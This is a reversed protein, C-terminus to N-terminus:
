GALESLRRVLDAGLQGTAPLGSRTEFTRIAQRTKPTLVGDEGGPDYGLRALMQQVLLVQDATPEPAIVASAANAASAKAKAAKVPKLGLVKVQVPNLRATNKSSGTAPANALTAVAIGPQATGLLETGTRLSLNGQTRAGENAARDRAKPQWAMIVADIDSVTAPLMQTRMADRRRSAEADGAKAALGYWRYAEAQDQAVGLGNENLVALNFQSDALGFEAAKSFWAAAMQYNPAGAEPGSIIVALNHMAKVNGQQAARDYWDRAVEQDRAVGQGREYLAGLRYQAVAYGQKASREFWLAAEKLDRHKAKPDAYRQGIEFQAPAEGKAAALRLVLPGAIAPPIALKPASALAAPDNGALQTADVSVPSAEAAPVRPVILDPPLTSIGATTDPEANAIPALDPDTNLEATATAEAAMFQTGDLLSPSEAAPETTSANAVAIGDVREIILSATRRGALKGYLLGAFLCTLIVAAVLLLIRPDTFSFGASRQAAPRPLGTNMAPRPPLPANMVEPGPLKSGPDLAVAPKPPPSAARNTAANAARRASAVLDERSLSTRGGDEAAALNEAARRMSNRTQAIDQATQLRSQGLPGSTAALPSPEAALETEAAPAPEGSIDLRNTMPVVPPQWVPPQDALAAATLPAVQRLGDIRAALDALMEPISPGNSSSEAADHQQAQLEASILSELGALRQDVSLLRAAIGEEDTVRAMKRDFADMRSQIRDLAEHVPSLAQVDVRLHTLETTLMGVAQAMQHTDNGPASDARREALQAIAACLRAEMGALHTSVPLPLEAASLDPSEDFALGSPVTATETPLPEALWVPFTNAAATSDPAPLALHAGQELLTPQPVIHTPPTGPAVALLESAVAVNANQDAARRRSQTAVLPPNQPPAVRVTDRSPRVSIPAAFTRALSSYFTGHDALLGAGSVAVTATPEAPTANRPPLGRLASEIQAVVVTDEVEALPQPPADLMASRHASASAIDAAIRKVIGDLGASAAPTHGPARGHLQRLDGAPSAIETNAPM